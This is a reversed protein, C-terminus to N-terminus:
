GRWRKSELMRLTLFLFFLCFALYFIVDETDIVGKAFAELHHTISIYNIFNGAWPGVFAVSMNLMWFLFLVGFSVTAAVIQNETLSSAFIGLSIFSAGLLMLGIYGTIVPGPEPEGFAMVIGPFVLSFALMVVLIGACAFFKGLLVEIDSIPYTLLLEITGSKKEEAFLRMTLLPMMILMIMSIIGFLPRIVGETVNLLNEQRAISPDVQSQFSLTSFYAFLGYFLYGTILMFMAIVVYAVPSSFYSKMEKKFILATNRMISRFRKRGYIRKSHVEGCCSGPM